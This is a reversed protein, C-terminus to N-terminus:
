RQTPRAQAFTWRYGELDEAVYTPLWPWENAHLITAGKARAHGLHAAFDEVYVWPMHTPGGSVPAGDRKSLILSAGGARLELWPAGHDGEPMPDTGDPLRDAEFGFVDTLWRAAALPRVYYLSLGLRAIDVMERRSAVPRACWTGFWAPVVRSWATGGRDVGDAAIHHRVVVKTGGAVPTFSVETAVDDVKSQWALRAPPDWATIHALEVMEGHARDDLIEGIRGGVGPECRGEVVRGADSSFNIPGRRWWLDMDETFARFAAEPSVAVEVESSVTRGGEM